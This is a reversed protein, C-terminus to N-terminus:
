DDEEEEEEDRSWEDILLPYAQEIAGRFVDPQKLPKPGFAKYLRQTWDDTLKTEWAHDCKRQGQRLEQVRKWPHERPDFANAAERLIERM